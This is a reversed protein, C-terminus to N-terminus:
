DKAESIVDFVTAVMQVASTGTDEFAESLLVSLM